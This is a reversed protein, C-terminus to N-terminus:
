VRQTPATASDLTFSKVVTTGDNAYLNLTTGSIVWKGFGQARAANLCDGHTNATNTTPIAQTTDITVAATVSAVPGGAYTSTGRSSITTDIDTVLLKGISGVTTFDGSSTLDQFIATAIQTVTPPTGTYPNTPISGIPANIDAKLLAGISGATGFDGGATLDQWITTAITAATPPTVTLSYGTKDNNTVVTVFGSANVVLAATANGVALQPQMLIPASVHSPGGTAGATRLPAVVPRRPALTGIAYAGVTVGVACTVTQTKITNLDVKQTDPTVVKGSAVLLQDTGSGSTLLSANTTCATDPLASFGANTAKAVTLVDGADNITGEAGRWAM